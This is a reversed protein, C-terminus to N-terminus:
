GPGFGLIELAIPLGAEAWRAYMVGSPHLGDSAVLEPIEVAERSIGTIDLYRVGAADSEMRNVQNFANIERAIQDRDRGEAFPTVGWDPISLVLVKKPDGGAFAEAQSLLDIFQDRYEELERGRYQNNVGILLSVFDYSGALGAAQIGATLEDTTWGTRAVIVPEQVALGKLRLAEALLVPWRLASDVSEGITYSDGLALYSFADSAM